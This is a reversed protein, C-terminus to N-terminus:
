KLCENWDKGGTPTHRTVSVIDKALEILNKHAIDGGKDDDFASIISVNNRRAIDICAQILIKNSNGAISAVFMTPHIQRYSMCDIASETIVLAKPKGNCHLICFPKTAKGRSSRWKKYIGRLEVGSGYRFVCNNYRDAYILQHDACWDVLLGNIGRNDVLYSRTREWNGSHETPIISANKIAQKASKDSENTIKYGNGLFEVATNFDCELVHCVLDISGGGGKKEEHDFWKQGNISIRFGDSKFQEKDNPDIELGLKEASTKLEINRLVEINSM